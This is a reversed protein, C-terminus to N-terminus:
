MPLAEYVHIAGNPVHGLLPCSKAMEAAEDLSAAKVISYGSSPDDDLAKVGSKTVVKAGDNFPNGGDVLKDGLKAFWAGWAKLVEDMPVNAQDGKNYYIYVYNKM